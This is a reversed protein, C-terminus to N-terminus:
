GRALMGEIPVTGVPHPSGPADAPDLDSCSVVGVGTRKARYMAADARAILQAVSTADQPFCAIGISSGVSLSLGRAEVPAGLVDRMSRAIREPAGDGQPNILLILFEDGGLRCVTDEDRSHRILRQAMEKLVADGAAHGHVDNVQKFRDLDVFMVALKWGHRESMAIAQTLRDAFLEHNPLGTLGDHLARHRSQEEERQSGALADETQLLTERVDALASETDALQEIGQSLAENVEEVDVAVQKVSSELREGEDLSETAPLTSIGAAIREKVSQNTSELELAVDDIKEKVAQSRDLALDLSAPEPAGIEPVDLVPAVRRLPQTQVDAKTRPASQM